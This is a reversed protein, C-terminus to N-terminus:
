PCCWVGPANVMDFPGCSPGPPPEGVLCTWTTPNTASALQQRCLFGTHVCEVPVASLPSCEPADGADGTTPEVSAGCGTVVALCAGFLAAGAILGIVAWTAM